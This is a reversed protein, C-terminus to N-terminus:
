IVVALEFFPQFDNELEGLLGLAYMHHEVVAVRVVSRRVRQLHRTQDVARLRGPLVDPQSPAPRCGSRCARSREWASTAPPRSALSESRSCTAWGFTSTIASHTWPKSSHPAKSSGRM